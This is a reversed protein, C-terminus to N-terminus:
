YLGSKKKIDPRDRESAQRTKKKRRLNLKKLVRHVTTLSVCKGLQDEIRQSIALLTLDSENKVIERIVLYDEDTLIPAAGERKAPMMHGDSSFKKILRSVSSQSVEFRDAIEEQTQGDEYATIICMRIEVPIIAVM